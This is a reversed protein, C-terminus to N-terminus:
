SMVEPEAVTRPLEEPEPQPTTTEVVARAEDILREVQEGPPNYRAFKVLDSESLITMFGSLHRMPLGAGTFAARLEATTQELAPIRYRGEIYTRLCDSVLTYHQKLKNQAPLNLAEIRDLEAYAIVEPPRPDIVPMPIELPVPRTKRRHYFWMAAGFLLGSVLISALLGGVVWPWVPPVAMEAQPKLDRLELDETLVSSININVIPAALEEISGDPPRHTVVLPPTEYQGPAFLTVVIDRGTTATGNEHNVTEPPTQDVVEFQGWEPELQPL